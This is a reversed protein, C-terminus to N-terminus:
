PLRVYRLPFTDDARQVLQVGTRTAWLVNQQHLPIYAIDNQVLALAHRLLARRAGRDSEVQIRALLADLKPNSYGAINFDGAHTKPNRTAALTFLVNQADYTAATSGLLFFSTDLGPPMIKAFFDARNQAHLHVTIGVKGLMAAVATCIAEDNVYRDTPCDMGTEFGGGYGAAALLRRAMAPDYPLRKDLAPDFGNVGPAVMLAAPTAHGRMVAAIIAPEDIARYFAERVRRDRFPNHGKVSSDVLTPRWEDFGLFVTMLGPREVIRLGPTHAIRDLDQPPVTYIMDLAGAALKAVLVQPDAIPTFVAKDLDHERRDWWHPNAALVTREGPVRAAVMFPGTGDAHEAAYDDDHAGCWRSSMIPWESLEDPLVPDPGNTHFEVTHADITRVQAITALLGAIRSHPGNARRFSFVVDDATFPAGDQFTVGARLHFRWVEPATQTWSVALGPELALDRGRRVLPEYINEDFSRLFTERGAYPDLSRVDRDSAWRFTKAAVPPAAALAAALAAAWLWGRM